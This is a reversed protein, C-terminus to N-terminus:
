SCLFDLKKLLAHQETLVVTLVREVPGRIQMVRREARKPLSM